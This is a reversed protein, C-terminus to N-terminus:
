RLARRPRLPNTLASNDLKQAPSVHACPLDFQKRRMHATHAEPIVFPVPTHPESM